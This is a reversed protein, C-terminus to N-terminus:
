FAQGFSIHLAPRSEACPRAINDTGICTFTEVRTKFGLDVRLPGFPSRYRVGFGVASRFEAVNLQTVRQFVNGTDFFSVVSLGGRVPVRVEGNLVVTANGGIPFGKQDITDAQPDSPEHRVGLTDLSFGRVTTDGGAFFREPEPIPNTTDFEAAMGVRASGALVIGSSGVVSRFTQATIFSKVFGVQSGIARAALQGNVSFYAGATPNVADNRTDRIVSSSFSSLRLPELSFLQPILQFAPDTAEVKVTLLETRQIAYAETISVTRTLRQAAQVTASARRFDFSTRIQQELTATVLGDTTSNLFRPERYTGLVRYETLNPTGAAADREQLHLSISGFVNFSRNKGFLNKRGYEFFTRPAVDFRDTAVGNEDQRALLRGEAGLGYGITSPPSEEITVLLDRTTEAAHRLESIQVRRFLGLSTLKRQSENIASTSFPDGPKMQLEREITDTSTRVNGVILVRDVFIQSGEQVLFSVDVRTGGESFETRPEVIAAQYGLDQYASEMANRSAILQGPIYPAGPQVVVKARLATEAIAENGSVDVSGVITRVGETVVIRVTVPVQAPPPTPTVVEVAPQVLASAFGRQAYADKITAVDADLTADSFPQGTRTRLNAEFETLPVTANGSIEFTAVRSQQGRKVTFTIILEGNKAERAHPAAADRYGQARLFEEIRNTSDELLDEDVSGEREVPVLEARRDPPLPDGAFVVRVLPGPNVAITINAVRDDNTLAVVPAIRAEYYGAKRREEIAREIRTNLAERQYPAGPKLGLRSLFDRPSVVPNGEIHLEGISTRPGPDISFVLTAREPAHEVESRPAVTARLYGEERLTDVILRTMDAVRALPPSTGYRDVIARRMASDAVGPAAGAFTFRIRGVPHIPILDYRLVVRGNDLSADVRVDEFRGLSFLHAISSRVQAMSLPQGSATEVVQTLATETTERGEITLHVSAVPRGLFDTVAALAPRAGAFVGCVVSAIAWITRSRRARIRQGRHDVASGIM